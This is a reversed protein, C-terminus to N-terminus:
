MLIIHVSMVQHSKYGHSDSGCVRLDIVEFCTVSIRMSGAIEDKTESGDFKKNADTWAVFMNNNFTDDTDTFLFPDMDWTEDDQIEEPVVSAIRVRGSQWVM